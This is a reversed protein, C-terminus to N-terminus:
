IWWKQSTIGHPFRGMAVMWFGVQLMEELETLRHKLVSNCGLNLQLRRWRRGHKAWGVHPNIYHIWPWEGHFVLSKGLLPDVHILQVSRLFFFSLGGVVIWTFTELLSQLETCRQTGMVWGHKLRRRGCAQYLSVAGSDCIANDQPDWHDWPERCETEIMWDDLPLLQKHMAFFLTFFMDFVMWNRSDRLEM